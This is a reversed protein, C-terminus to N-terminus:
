EISQKIHFKHEGKTMERALEHIIGNLHLKVCINFTHYYRSCSPMEPHYPQHHHQHATIKPGRYVDSTMNPRDTLRVM